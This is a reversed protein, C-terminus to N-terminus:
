HPEKRLCIGTHHCLSKWLCVWLLSLLGHHHDLHSGLNQVGSDPLPVSRGHYFLHFWPSMWHDGPLHSFLHMLTWWLMVSSISPSASAGSTLPQCLPWWSISVHGWSHTGTGVGWWQLCQCLKAQSLSGLPTSMGWAAAWSSLFLLPEPSSLSTSWDDILSTHVCTKMQPWYTMKPWSIRGQFTHCPASLSLWASSVPWHGLANGSDPALGGGGLIVASSLNVHSSVTKSGQTAHRVLSGLNLGVLSRVAAMQNCRLCFNKLLPVALSAHVVNSTWALCSDFSSNPFTYRSPVLPVVLPFCLLDWVATWSPSMAHPPCWVEWLSTFLPSFGDYTWWYLSAYFWQLVEMVWVDVTLCLVMTLGGDGVYSCHPMFCDYTRVAGDDDDM